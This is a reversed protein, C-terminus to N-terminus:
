QGKSKGEDKTSKSLNKVMDLHQQLIPLTTSAFAKVNPDTGNQAEAQFQKVDAEHDKLQDKVYAKDFADGSLKSLKDIRAQHKSDLATPVPINDKGAAEKLQDNAKSHDDVMKQGFQKVSESSAKQSAVKGLEVELLGGQAAEKVFKQDPAKAAGSAAGGADPTTQGMTGPTGATQSPMTSRTTPSQGAPGAAGPGAAGPGQALAISAPQILLTASTFVAGLLLNRKM